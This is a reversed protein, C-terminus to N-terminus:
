NIDSKYKYISDILFYFDLYVISLFSEGMISIRNHSINDMHEDYDLKVFHSHVIKVNVAFVFGM